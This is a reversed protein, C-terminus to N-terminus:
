KIQHLRKETLIKWTQFIWHCCQLNFLYQFIFYKLALSVQLSKCLIVSFTNSACCCIKFFVGYFVWSNFHLINEIVRCCEFFTSLEHILFIWDGGGEFQEWTEYFFFDRKLFIDNTLLNTLQFLSHISVWIRVVCTCSFIREFHNKFNYAEFIRHFM